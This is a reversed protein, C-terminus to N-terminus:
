LADVGYLYFTTNAPGDITISGGWIMVGAGYIQFDGGAGPNFTNACNSNTETTIVSRTGNVYRVLPATNLANSCVQFENPNGTTRVEIARFEFTEARTTFALYSLFSPTRLDTASNFTSRRLVDDSETGDLTDADLGSGSGDVRRLRALIQGGSPSPLMLSSEQVDTGTLSDDAVDSGQVADAEIDAGRVDDNTLEQSRVSGNAIERSGVSDKALAWAGGGLAIFLAVTAVVNAYNLRTTAWVVCRKM